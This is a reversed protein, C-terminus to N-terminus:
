IKTSSLIQMNEDDCRFQFGTEMSVPGGVRKWRFQFRSPFKSYVMSAGPMSRQALTALGRHRQRVPKKCRIIQKSDDGATAVVGTGVGASLKRFGDCPGVGSGDWPGVCSGDRLGVAGGVSRGVYEVKGVLPGVGSGDLTGVGKGVNAGVGDGVKEGVCDGNGVWLGVGNGDCAGVSKGVNEVKGVWPGVGSGDFIGVGGGM